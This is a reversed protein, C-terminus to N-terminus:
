LWKLWAEIMEAVRGEGRAQAKTLAVILVTDERSEQPDVRPRQGLGEGLSSKVCCCLSGESCTLGSM